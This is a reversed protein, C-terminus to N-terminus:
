EYYRSAEQMKKVEDKYGKAILWAYIYNMSLKELAAWGNECIYTSLEEFSTIFCGEIFIGKEKAFSQFLLFYLLEDDGDALQLLQQISNWINLQGNNELYRKLLGKRIFEVCDMDVYRADLSQVFSEMTGFDRGKYVISRSDDLILLTAAVAEDPEKTRIIEKIQAGKEEDFQNVFDILLKGKEVSEFFRKKVPEWNEKIKEILDDLSVARVVSGGQIVLIIPSIKTEIRPIVREANRPINVMNRCWLDVERYTYRLSPDSQVLGGVVERLRIPVKAPILIGTEWEREIELPTKGEFHITGMYLDLITMGFSAYDTAVNKLFAHGKIPYYELSYEETDLNEYSNEEISIDYDGILGYTKDDSWFLNAPKIDGHIIHADHLAKLGENIGRIVEKLEDEDSIRQLTGNKYYPYVEYWYDRERGYEILPVLYQSTIHKLQSCLCARKSTYKALKVVYNQGEYETLLVTQLQEKSIDKIVNYKNAIFDSTVFVGSPKSKITECTQYNNMSVQIIIKSALLWVNREKKYQAM